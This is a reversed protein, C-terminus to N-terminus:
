KLVFITGPVPPHTVCVAWPGRAAVTALVPKPTATSSVGKPTDDAQTASAAAASADAPLPPPPM